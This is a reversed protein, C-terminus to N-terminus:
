WNLMPKAIWIDYGIEEIEEISYERGFELRGKPKIWLQIEDGNPNFIPRGQCPELGLIKITQHNTYIGALENKNILDIAEDKSIRKIEYIGECPIFASVIVVKM